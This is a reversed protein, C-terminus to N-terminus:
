SHYGVVQWTVKSIPITMYINVHCLSFGYAITHKINHTHLNYHFNNVKVGKASWLVLSLQIRLPGFKSSLILEM